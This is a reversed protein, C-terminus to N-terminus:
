WFLNSTYKTWRYIILSVSFHKRLRIYFEFFTVYILWDAWNFYNFTLQKEVVFSKGTWLKWNESCTFLIIIINWWLFAVYYSKIWSVLLLEMWIKPINKHFLAKFNRFVQTRSFEFFFSHFITVKIYFESVLFKVSLLMKLQKCRTSKSLCKSRSKGWIEHYCESKLPNIWSLRYFEQSNELRNLCVIKVNNQVEIICASCFVFREFTTRM